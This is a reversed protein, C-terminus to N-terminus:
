ETATMLAADNRLRKEFSGMAEGHVDYGQACSNQLLSHLPQWEWPVMSFRGAAYEVTQPALNSADSLQCRRCAVASIWQWFELTIWTKNDTM